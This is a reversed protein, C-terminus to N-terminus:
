AAVGYQAALAWLNNAPLGPLGDHRLGYRLTAVLLSRSGEIASQVPDIKAKRPSAATNQDMYADMAAIDAVPIDLGDRLRRGSYPALGALRYVTGIAQGTVECYDALRERLRATENSDYTDGDIAATSKGTAVITVQKAPGFSRIRIIGAKELRRYARLGANPSSCGFLAALKANSPAPACANVAEALLKMTITDRRRNVSDASM